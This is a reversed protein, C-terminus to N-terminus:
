RWENTDSLYDVVLSTLNTLTTSRALAEAGDDGINNSVLNLSTLNTLTTSRALAEAGAAGINNYALDLSTLNTLTTSRALAVAGGAGIDNSFLDLSTLNTLTTSQALGEAGDDGINNSSLDLSTLNTLTTSQALAAAAGPGINNYTLDLSTLNTLTTSQALAEAGAAGINNYSLNLSTLSTLQVLAQVVKNSISNNSLDLDLSKLTTLLNINKQAIVLVILERKDPSCQTLELILEGVVEQLLNNAMSISLLKKEPRLLLEPISRFRPSKIEVNNNLRSSLNPHTQFFQFSFIFFPNFDTSYLLHKLPCYNPTPVVM